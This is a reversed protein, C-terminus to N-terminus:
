PRYSGNGSNLAEHVDDRFNRLSKIEYVASQLLCILDEDRLLVADKLESLKFQLEELVDVNVIEQADNFHREQICDDCILAIDGNEDTIKTYGAESGGHSGCDACQIM